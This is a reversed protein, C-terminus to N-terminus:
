YAARLHKVASRGALNDPLPEGSAPIWQLEVPKGPILTFGADSFRGPSDCEAQVFFAPKDTNLVIRDKGSGPSVTVKAEALRCDRPKTLLLSELTSVGEPTKWEAVIFRDTFGEDV